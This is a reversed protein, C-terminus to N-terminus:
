TGPTERDAACNQVEGRLVAVAHPLAPMILQLCEEVAKPSGPMNVILSKGRVGATARSLMARPTYRLSHWRMAEAIGPVEKEIVQYTAEPTNDRPGLGTGGTTFILDAGRNDAMDRLERAILETDDCVIVHHIVTAGAAEVIERIKSGSLDEREGRAGSDSATLICVRLGKM